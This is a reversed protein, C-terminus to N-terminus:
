LSLKSHNYKAHFPDFVQAERNPDNKPTRTKSYFHDETVPSWINIPQKDSTYSGIM